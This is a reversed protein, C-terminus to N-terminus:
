CINCYYLIKFYVEVVKEGMRTKKCNNRDNLLKPIYLLNRVEHEINCRIDPAIFPWLAAGCTQSVSKRWKTMGEEAM